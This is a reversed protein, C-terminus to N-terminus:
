ADRRNLIKAVRWNCLLLVKEFCERRQRIRYLRMAEHIAQHNVDVPGSAGMIFQNKIINFIMVADRNEILVEERCTDCPPDEPPDRRGYIERCGDCQPLYEAM